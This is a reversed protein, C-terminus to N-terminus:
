SVQLKSKVIDTPYCALWFATGGLGGALLNDSFGLSSTPVGKSHAIAEKSLHYVGFMALNGLSERLLTAGLGKFLGPLGGENRLVHRAVDRPGRYLAASGPDVGAAALRAAAVKKDGQAQLRCKLLETPCAVLSVAASAALASLLEDSLTLPSGDEHALLAQAQGRSSFLIANFLAVTAFPAAMGRYFGRLGEKALTQRAADLPGRFQAAAPAASQSQM